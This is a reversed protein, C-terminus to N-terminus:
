SLSKFFSMWRRALGALAFIKDRNKLVPGPSYPSPSIKRPKITGWDRVMERLYLSKGRESIWNSRLEFIWSSRVMAKAIKTLRKALDPTWSRMFIKNLSALDFDRQSRRMAM